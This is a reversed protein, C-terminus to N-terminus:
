PRISFIRRRSASGAIAGLLCFFFYKVKTETVPQSNVFNLLEHAYHSSRNFLKQLFCALPLFSLFYTTLTDLYLIFSNISPDAQFFMLSNEIVTRKSKQTSFHNASKKEGFKM